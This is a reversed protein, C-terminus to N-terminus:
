PLGINVSLIECPGIQPQFPLDDMERRIGDKRAIADLLDEDCCLGELEAYQETTFRGQRNRIAECFVDDTVCSGLEIIESPSFRIGQDLARKVLRSGIKEDFFENAIEVVEASSTFDTLSSIRSIKTSEAWDWFRDYYDEWKM